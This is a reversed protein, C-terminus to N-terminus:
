LRTGLSFHHTFFVWQLFFGELRYPIPHVSDNRFAWLWLQIGHRLFGPKIVVGLGLKYLSLNLSKNRAVSMIGLDVWTM